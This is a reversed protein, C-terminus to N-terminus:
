YIYTVSVLYKLVSREHLLYKTSFGIVSLLPMCIFHQSVLSMFFMSKNGTRIRIENFAIAVTNHYMPIWMKLSAQLLYFLWIPSIFATHSLDVPHLMNSTLALLNEMFRMLTINKALKHSISNIVSM